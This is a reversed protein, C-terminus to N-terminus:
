VIWAQFEDISKQCSKEIVLAIVHADILNKFFTNCAYFNKMDKSVKPQKPVGTYRDLSVINELKGWFKDFIM